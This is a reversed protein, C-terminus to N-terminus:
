RLFGHPIEDDGEGDVSAATTGTADWCRSWTALAPSRAGDVSAKTVAFSAICWAIIISYVPSGSMSKARLM